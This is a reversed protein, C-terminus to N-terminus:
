DELSGKYDLTCDRLLDELAQNVRETQGEMQPYFSSSNDLKTGLACQLISWFMSTFKTDRDWIISLPTSHYKLVPDVYLSSLDEVLLNEEGSYLTEFLFCISAVCIRM